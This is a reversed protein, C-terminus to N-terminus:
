KIKVKTKRTKGWTPLFNKCKPCSIQNSITSKKSTGTKRPTATFNNNCYGCYYQMPTPKQTAM